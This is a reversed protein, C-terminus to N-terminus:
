FWFIDIDLKKRLILVRMEQMPRAETIRLIECTEFYREASKDTDDIVVHVPYENGAQALTKMTHISDPRGHSIIFICFDTRM